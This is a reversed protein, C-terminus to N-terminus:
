IFDRRIYIVIRASGIKSLCLIPKVNAHSKQVM